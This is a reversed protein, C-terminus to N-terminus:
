STAQRYRRVVLSRALLVGCAVALLPSAGSRSAWTLAGGLLVLRGLIPMIARTTLTGLALARATWWVMTFYAIGTGIGIVLYPAIALPIAWAEIFPLSHSSM